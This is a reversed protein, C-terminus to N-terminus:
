ELHHRHASPDPCDFYVDKGHILGCHRYYAKIRSEDIRNWADSMIQVINKKKIPGRKRCREKWDHFLSNDLPSMRKAGNTPMVYITQLDQCRNDHFTQMIEDINHANSGDVVLTIPFLDLAGVAQALVDHIYDNVIQKNVGRVEMRKRDEPTITMPPFTREGSICAIMDYRAAYTSTQEAVVYREEGPAVLTRKRVANLRLHAEDLFLITSKCHRMLERRM